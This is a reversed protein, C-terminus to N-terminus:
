DPRKNRLSSEIPNFMWGGFAGKVGKFALFRPLKPDDTGLYITNTGADISALRYPLTWNTRDGFTIKEGTTGSSFSIQEFPVNEGNKTGGGYPLFEFEAGHNILWDRLYSVVSTTPPSIDSNRAPWWAWKGGERYRYYLSSGYVLVYYKDAVLLRIDESGGFAPVQGVKDPFYTHPWKISLSTYISTDQLGLRETQFVCLITGPQLEIEKVKKEAPGCGPLLLSFALVVCRKTIEAAACGMM